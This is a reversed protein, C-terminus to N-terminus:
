AFLCGGLSFTFVPDTGGLTAVIRWTDPLLDAVSENATDTVTPYITLDDQGTGTKQAFAAAPIDFWKESLKDFSQLKIDLTPSSGTVATIDLYLKIGRHDGLNEIKQGNFTASRAASPLVTIQIM